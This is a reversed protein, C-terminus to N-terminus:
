KQDNKGFLNLKSLLAGDRSAHHKKTTRLLSYPVTVLHSQHNKRDSAFLLPVLRAHRKWRERKKISSFQTLFAPLLIIPFTKAFIGFGLCLAAWKWNKNDNVLLLFAVFSLYTPITDLQGFVSSISIVVPSFVLLLVM